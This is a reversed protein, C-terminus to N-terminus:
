PNSSVALRTLHYAMLHDPALLAERFEKQAQQLAAPDLSHYSTKKKENTPIDRLSLWQMGFKHAFEIAEAQTRGIEDTIASIRAKTIHSKFAQLKGAAAAFAAGALLDRRTM